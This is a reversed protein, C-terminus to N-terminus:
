ASRTSANRDVSSTHRRTVGLLRSAMRLIPIAARAAGAVVANESAAALGSTANPLKLANTRAMGSLVLNLAWTPAGVARVGARAPWVSRPRRTSSAM